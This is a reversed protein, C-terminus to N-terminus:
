TWCGVGVSPSVPRSANPGALAPPITGPSFVEDFRRQIAEIGGLADVVLGLLEDDM